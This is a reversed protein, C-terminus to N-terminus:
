DRFMRAKVDGLDRSEGARLTLGTAVSGVTLNPPKGAVIIQYTLGPLIGKLAFRGQDDTRIVEPLHQQLYKLGRKSFYVRLDQNKWPQGDSDLLRGTVKGTPQLRIAVPEKAGARIEVAAGLQRDSHLVFVWSPQKPHLAEVTFRNDQLPRLNWHAGPTQGRVRAGAVPQGAADIVICGLTRGPDLTLDCKVVEQGAKAEIRGVAHFNGWNGIALVLQGAEAASLTEQPLYAGATARATIVGEGPLVPIRFSGDAKTRFLDTFLTSRGAYDAFGKLNPNRTHAVYQVSARVPKGTRQDTVRGEAWHGRPLAFDARMPQSRRGLRIRKIAPLYPQDRPPIAVVHVENLGGRRFLWSPLSDQRYTGDKGTRPRWPSGGGVDIAVGPIPKGTRADRVTGALPRPPSAAHQFTAPYARLDAESDPSDSVRFPKGARTMVLIFDNEVRPGSIELLVIRERGVGVLRFKGDADTTLRAPLGPVGAPTMVARPFFEYVQMRKKDRIAKLWPQLDEKDTAGLVFPRVTAGRVPKGELNVIRGAIPVDDKVLRLTLEAGAPPPKVEALAPGFGEAVAMWQASLQRTRAAAPLTRQLRFEGNHGSRALATPAPGPGDEAQRPLVHYVKAGAVPKGAPDLVRGRVVGPKEAEKQGKEKKPAPKDKAPGAASEKEAPAAGFPAWLAGAGAALLGALLLALAVKTKTLLMTRTVGNALAAVPAPVASSACAGAAYAMAAAATARVTAASVAEGARARGVAALVASLTVGRRVLREQLLRRAKALRSSVTGERLGLERAAEAKTREGLCCLVFVRRYLEPLRAVEQDLLAQVEEWSPAESPPTAEPRASRQERARRRALSRKANMAIRHSVGYLWAALPGRRAAGPCRALVLFTAQFADEADQLHGLTRRCVGLVLAGHRAVLAAFAAEDRDRAFAELLLEDGFAPEAAGALRRIKRVVSNLQLQAM